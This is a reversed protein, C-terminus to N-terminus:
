RFKWTLPLFVEHGTSKKPGYPVTHSAPTEKKREAQAKDKREKEEKSIRECEDVKGNEAGLAVVPEFALGGNVCIGEFATFWRTLGEEFDAVSVALLGPDFRGADVYVADLDGRLFVELLFDGGEFLGDGNLLM